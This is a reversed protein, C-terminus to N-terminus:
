QGLREVANALAWVVRRASQSRLKRFITWWGPPEERPPAMLGRLGDLDARGLLESLILLNRFARIGEPRDVGAALRTAIDSGGAALGRLLDLAGHDHMKQLVDLGALVADAHQARAADIRAQIDPRPDARDLKLPIPIAM